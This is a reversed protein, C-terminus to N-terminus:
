FSLSFLILGPPRGLLPDPTQGRDGFGWRKPQPPPPPPPRNVRLAGMDEAATSHVNTTAPRTLMEAGKHPPEPPIRQLRNTNPEGAFACLALAMCASALLGSHGKSSRKM